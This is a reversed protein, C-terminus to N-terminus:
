KIASAAATLGAAFEKWTESFEQASSITGSKYNAQLFVSAQTFWPLWADRNSVQKDNSEKVKAFIEAIDKLNGSDILQAISTFSNALNTADQKIQETGYSNSSKVLKVWDYAKAASGTLSDNPPLEPKSPAPDIPNDPTTPNNPTSPNGVTIQAVMSSSRQVLNEIKGTPDEEGFVYSANLIVVYKTDTPGTGFLIKSKDPWIKHDIKPLITWVYDSSILDTTDLTEEISLEILDGVVYPESAGKISFQPNDYLEDDASQKAATLTLSFEPEQAYTNSCLGLCLLSVYTVLALGVTKQRYKSM